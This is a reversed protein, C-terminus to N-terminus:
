TSTDPRTIQTINGSSDYQYTTTRGMPDTISTPWDNANRTITTTHNRADTKSIVGGLKDFTLATTANDPNTVKGTYTLTAPLGTNGTGGWALLGSEQAPTTAVTSTGDFLTEQSLRGFSDYTVSATKGNPDTESTLQHSSNYGYQTAAGDPDVIKTLNGNADLTFTTVRGAPDTVTSLHGNADYALTTVLGVPDTITSLAGAAAGSTVYAYGTTNGNRDARSTEQGSGNFTLVTGDSYTRTWTQSSSTYVLKSTDTPDGTYNVGDSTTFEEPAGSGTGIMVPSGSVGAPGTITQWGGLSWGAGYHSSSANATMLSNSFSEITTGGGILHETITVTETYLGTALSSANIAQLQLLYTGNGPLNNITIPSGQAVGNVTLVLTISAIAGSGSDTTLGWAGGVIPQFNSQLSSYQLDIGHSQGQSQYSVLQHDQLYEGTILSADSNLPGSQSSAPVSNPDPASPPAGCCPGDPPPSTDDATPACGCISYWDFGDGANTNSPMVGFSPGAQPPPSTGAAVSSMTQAPTTPGSSPTGPNAPTLPLAALRIGTLRARVPHQGAWRHFEASLRRDLADFRHDGQAELRALWRLRGWSGSPPRLLQQVARAEPAADASAAHNPHQTVSQGHERSPRQELAESRPQGGAEPHALQHSMGWPDLGQRLLWRLELKEMEPTLANRRPKRRPHRSM